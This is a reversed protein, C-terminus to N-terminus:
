VVAGGRGWKGVKGLRAELCNSCVGKPHKNSDGTPAKGSPEGGEWEEGRGKRDGV